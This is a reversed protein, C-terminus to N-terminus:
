QCGTEIDAYMGASEQTKCSFSTEPVLAYNPYDVGPTGPLEGGGGTNAGNAGANNVATPARADGNRRPTIDVPNLNVPRERQVAKLATGNRNRVSSRQENIQHHKSQDDESFATGLSFNFGKKSHGPRRGGHQQQVLPSLPTASPAQTPTPLAVPFFPDHVNPVVQDFGPSEQEDSVSLPTPPLDVLVDVVQVEKKTQPPSRVRTVSHDITFHRSETPIHTKPLTQQQQKQKPQEQDNQAPREPEDQQSQIPQFRVNPGTFSDAPKPLLKAPSHDIHFVQQNSILRTQQSPVVPKDSRQRSSEVLAPPHPSPINRGNLSDTVYPRNKDLKTKEEELERLEEEFRRRREELQSLEKKLSRVRNLYGREDSEFRRQQEAFRRYNEDASRPPLEATHSEPVRPGELIIQQDVPAQPSILLMQVPEPVENRRSDELRNRPPDGIATPQVRQQPPNEETLIPIVQKFTQTTVGGSHHTREITFDITRTKTDTLGDRFNQNKMVIQNQRRSPTRQTSIKQEQSPVVQASPFETVSLSSPDFEKASFKRELEEKQRRFVTDFDERETNIPPSSTPRAFSPDRVGQPFTMKKGSHFDAEIRSMREDPDPIKGPGRIDDGTVGQIFMTNQQHGVEGTNVDQFLAANRSSRGPETTEPRDARLNDVPALRAHVDEDSRGVSEFIKRAERVGVPNPPRIVNIFDIEANSLAANGSLPPVFFIGQQQKSVRSSPRLEDLPHIAPVDERELHKHPLRPHQNPLVVPRNGILAIDGPIGNIHASENDSEEAAVHPKPNPQQIPAQGRTDDGNAVRRAHLEQDPRPTSNQAPHKVTLKFNAGNGKADLFSFSRSTASQQSSAKSQLFQQPISPTSTSLTQQLVDLPKATFALPDGGPAFPGIPPPPPRTTSEKDALM